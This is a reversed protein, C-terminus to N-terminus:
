GCSAAAIAFQAAHLNELMTIKCSPFFLCGNGFSLTLGLMGCPIYPDDAFVLAFVVYAELVNTPHCLKNHVYDCVNIMLGSQRAHTAPSMTKEKAPEPKAAKKLM